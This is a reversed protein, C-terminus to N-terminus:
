PASSSLSPLPSSLLRPPSSDTQHGGRPGAGVCPSICEESCYLSVWAPEHLAASHSVCVPPSVLSPSVGCASRCPCVVCSCKYLSVPPSGSFPSLGPPSVLFGCAPERQCVCVCASECPCVYVPLRAVTWECGQASQLGSKQQLFFGGRPASPDSRGGLEPIKGSGTRPASRHPLVPLSPCNAGAVERWGITRGGEWWAWGGARGSTPPLKEQAGAGSNVPLTERSSEQGRGGPRPGMCTGERKGRARPGRTQLDAPPNSPGAARPGRQTSVAGELRRPEAGRGEVAGPLSRRLSRPALVAALDQRRAGRRAPQLRRTRQRRRRGSQVPEGASPPKLGGMRRGGERAGERRGEGMHGRAGARGRAGESGEGERRTEGRRPPRAGRGGGPWPGGTGGGQCAGAGPVRPGSARACEDQTPRHAGAGMRRTSARVRGVAPVSARVPVSPGRANARERFRRGSQQLGRAEHAAGVAPRLFACACVGVGVGSSGGPGSPACGTGGPRENVSVRESLRPWTEAARVEVREPGSQRAGVGQCVGPWSEPDEPRCRRSFLALWPGWAGSQDPYAM